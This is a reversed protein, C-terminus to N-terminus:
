LLIQRTLRLGREMDYSGDLFPDYLLGKWGLATRPKEFYARMVIFFRDAVDSSLAKLKEAYEYTAATDHLSCPGVILLFRPDRGNLIAEITARAARVFDIHKRRAPFESSLELPTSIINEEVFSAMTM